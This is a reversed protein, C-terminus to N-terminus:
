SLSVTIQSIAFQLTDGAALSKPAALPAAVLRKPTGASDYLEIGVVTVAPMDPFNIVASNATSGSAPVSFTVDQRAYGGGTVETGAASDSGNETVLALKIPTTISFSAVGFLHSLLGNEAVDTLNDAM